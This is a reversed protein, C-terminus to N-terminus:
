PIVFSVMNVQGDDATTSVLPILAGGDNLYLTVYVQNGGSSKFKFVDGSVVDACYFFAALTAPKEAPMGILFISDPQLSPTCGVAGRSLEPAQLTEGSTFHIPRPQQTLGDLIKCYLTGAPEITVVFLPVAANLIRNGEEDVRALSETLRQLMTSKGVSM